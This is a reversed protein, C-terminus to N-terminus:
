DGGVTSLTWHNDFHVTTQARRKSDGSVTQESGAAWFRGGDAQLACAERLAIREVVAGAADTGILEHARTASLWFGGGDRACIDGGYGLSNAMAPASRLLYGDWTALLPASNRLVADDHEAQLAVGLIGSVKDFTLHRIGLRPDDLRWQGLLTGNEPHLAVLSSDMSTIDRHSRGTESHTRIGGNAVMLAGAPVAGMSRPLVLMAHPDMGHTRWETVKKLTKADRVGIHGQADALDTETTWIHSGEPSTVVHGNLQRDDNVWHWLTKGSNPYWRLLWDGPRRAVVLVSGDLGNCLGHARTPLEIRQFIHTGERTLALIGVEHRAEHLWSALLRTSEIDEDHAPSLAPLLMAGLLAIADRRTLRETAM